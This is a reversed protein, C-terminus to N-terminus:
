SLSLHFDFLRTIKSGERSNQWTSGGLGRKISRDLMDDNHDLDKFYEEPPESMKEAM